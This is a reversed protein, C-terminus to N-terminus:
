TAVAKRARKQKSAAPWGGLELAVKTAAQRLEDSLARDDSARAILQSTRLSTASM